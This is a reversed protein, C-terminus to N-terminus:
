GRGYQGWRSQTHMEQMSRKNMALDPLHRRGIGSRMDEEIRVIEIETGINIMKPEVLAFELRREVLHVGRM